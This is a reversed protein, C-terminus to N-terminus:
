QQRGTTDREARTIAEQLQALRPLLSQRIRALAGADGLRDARDLEQEIAVVDAWLTPLAVTATASVTAM